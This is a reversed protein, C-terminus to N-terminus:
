PQRGEACAIAARAAEIAHGGRALSPRLPGNWDDVAEEVMIKLAALLDPSAAVLNANAERTEESGSFIAIADRGTIVVLSNEDLTRPM